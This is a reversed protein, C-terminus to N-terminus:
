PHSEIPILKKQTIPGLPVIKKEWPIRGFIELFADVSSPSTFVIEDFLDLDPVPELRQSVPEYLDISLCPVGRRALYDGLVTRAKSSRPWGILAEDLNVTELLQILGEQTAFPAIKAEVGRERLAAATSPGVAFLNKLSIPCSLSFWHRVANPSTFLWHTCRSVDELLCDDISTRLVTKIVPYHTLEGTHQYRSPDTGIYLIRM